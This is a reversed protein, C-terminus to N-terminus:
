TPLLNLVRGVPGTFRIQGTQVALCVCVEDGVIRPRHVHRDDALTLDGPGFEAEGDRMRGSLVLTGEQGTHTHSPICVGPRARFLSVRATEFGGIRHESLGPLLRRWRVAMGCAALREALPAPIPAERLEEAPPRNSREPADIRDLVEALGDPEAPEPPGEALLAGGLAELRVVKDRCGPCYTLHCALLLSMGECLCGGAYAALMPAPAHAARTM